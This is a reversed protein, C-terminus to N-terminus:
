PHLSVAPTHVALWTHLCFVYINCIFLSSWVFICVCGTHEQRACAPWSVCIGVTLQQSRQNARGKVEQM